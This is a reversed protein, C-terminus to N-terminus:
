CQLLLLVEGFVGEDSYLSPIGETHTSLLGFPVLSQRCEDIVICCRCSIVKQSSNGVVVHLHVIIQKHYYYIKQSKNYTIHYILKIIISKYM